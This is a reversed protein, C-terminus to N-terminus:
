DRAGLAGRLCYFGHRFFYDVVTATLLLAVCSVITVMAAAVVAAVVMAPALAAAIALAVVIATTAAVFARVIRGIFIDPHFLELSIGARGRFIPRDHVQGFELQLCRGFEHFY